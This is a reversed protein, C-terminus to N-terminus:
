HDPLDLKIMEGEIFLCNNLINVTVLSVNVAM